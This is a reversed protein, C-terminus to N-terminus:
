RAPSSPSSRTLTERLNADFCKIPIADLCVPTEGPVCNIAPSCASATPVIALTSTLLLIAVLLKM